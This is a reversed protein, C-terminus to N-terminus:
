NEPSVCNVRRVGNAAALVDMEAVLHDRCYTSLLELSYDSIVIDIGSTGRLQDIMGRGQARQETAVSFPAHAMVGLAYLPPGMQRSQVTSQVPYAGEFDLVGGWVFMLDSQNTEILARALDIRPGSNNAIPLVTYFTYTMASILVASVFLQRRTSSGKSARAVGFMFVLVVPPFLVRGHVQAGVLGLGFTAFVTLGVAALVPLRVTMAAVLAAVFVLPIFRPTFLQLLADLGARINLRSASLPGLNPGLEAVMGNLTGAQALKPDEFFWSSVLSIDNASFGHGELIEPHEVIRTGIGFDTYPARALNIEGFARWDPTQYAAGDIMHAGICSLLLACWFVQLMRDHFLFKWPLLPVAVMLVLAFELPRILFGVFALVGSFLLLERAKTQEYAYIGLMAACSALGANMTFQPFLIPWTMATLVAPLAIWYNTGLRFLFYIFAWTSILLVGLTGLSYGQIGLVGDISRVVMGWLVNSFLLNPSGESVFGYGHAVMAMAVDDNTEWLPQFLAALTVVLAMAAALSSLISPLQVSRTYRSILSPKM